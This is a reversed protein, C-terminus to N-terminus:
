LQFSTFIFLSFNRQCKPFLVSFAHDELPESPTCTGTTSGGSVQDMVEAPLTEVQEQQPSSNIVKAQCHDEISDIVTLLAELSLLHTTYLQGTVPFANQVMLRYVDAKTLSWRNGTYCICLIHVWTLLRLSFRWNTVKFFYLHFNLSFDIFLCRAVTKMWRQETQNMEGSLIKLM